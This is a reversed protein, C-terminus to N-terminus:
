RRRVGRFQISKPANTWYRQLGANLPPGTRASPRDVPPAKAPSQGAIIHQMTGPPVATSHLESAGHSGVDTEAPPVTESEFMRTSFTPLWDDIALM